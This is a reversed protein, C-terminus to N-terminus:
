QAHRALRDLFWWHPLLLGLLMGTVLIVVVGAWFALTSV